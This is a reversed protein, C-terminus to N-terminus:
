LIFILLGSRPLVKQPDCPATEELRIQAIFSMPAGKWDPWEIGEPLDPAGGIQSIGIEIIQEDVRHSTLRISPKAFRLIDASLGTLGAKRLGRKLKTLNM